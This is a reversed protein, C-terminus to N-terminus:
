SVGVGNSRIAQMTSGVVESRRTMVSEDLSRATEEWTAVPRRASAFVTYWGESRYERDIAMRWRREFPLRLGLRKFLYFAPVYLAERMGGTTWLSIEEFGAQKLLCEIRAISYHRHGRLWWAPDLLIGLPHRNPTSLLFVGGPRLVRRAESLVRLESGSPVHELVEFLVATDFSRDTFPLARADGTLVTTRSHSGAAAVSVDVGVVTRKDAIAAALWGSSCGIDLISSGPTARVLSVSLATRGFLARDERALWATVIGAAFAGTELVKLGLLAAGAAPKSGLLRFFPRLRRHRLHGLASRRDKRVFELYSRGYRFRKTILAVLTLADDNHFITGEARVTSRGSARWRDTLDWDEGALLEEDYGGLQLFASRPFFRAAEVSPHGFYCRKELARLRALLGEGLGVEPVIAAANDGCAQLCSEVVDAELVMDSDIFLVWEGRAARAGANRQASREPGGSLVRAGWSSALAVTEDTSDRDVVIVGTRSHTQRRISAM